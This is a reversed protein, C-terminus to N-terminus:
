SEKETKYEEIQKSLEIARMLPTWKNGEFILRFWKKDRNEIKINFFLWLATFTFFITVLTQIIWLLLSGNEIM